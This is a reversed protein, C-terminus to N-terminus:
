RAPSRLGLDAALVRLIAAGRGPAALPARHLLELDAALAALAPDLPPGPEGRLREEWGTPVARELHGPRFADGCGCPLRALLPETLAFADIVHVAPGELYADLGVNHMRVVRPAGGTAPTPWPRQDAIRPWWGTTQGWFGREDAVGAPDLTRHDLRPGGRLPGRPHAAALAIGLALGLAAARRRDAALLLAGLTIASTWFRGAMFDGGEGVVV